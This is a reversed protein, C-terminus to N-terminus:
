VDQKWGNGMDVSDRCEPLVSLLRGYLKEDHGHLWSMQAIPLKAIHASGSPREFENGIGNAHDDLNVVTRNIADALLRLTDICWEQAPTDRTFWVLNILQQM